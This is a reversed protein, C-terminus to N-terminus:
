LGAFLGPNAQEVVSTTFCGERGAAVASVFEM